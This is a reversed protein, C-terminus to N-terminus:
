PPLNANLFNSIASIIDANKCIQTDIYKSIARRVRSIKSIDEGLFMTLPTNCEFILKYNKRKFIWGWLLNSTWRVYVIDPRVERIIDLLQNCFVYNSYVGRIKPIKLDRYGLISYEIGSYFPIKNYSCVIVRHGKKQLADIVGIIHATYGGIKNIELLFFSRSALVYLIKM